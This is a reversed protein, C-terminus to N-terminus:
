KIEEKPNLLEAKLAQWESKEVLWCNQPEGIGTPTFLKEVEALVQQRTLSAQSKAVETYIDIVLKSLETYEFAESWTTKFKKCSKNTIGVIAKIDESLLKDEGKGAPPLPQHLKRLQEVTLTVEKEEQKEPVPVCHGKGDCKESCEDENYPHEVAYDCGECGKFNGAENCIMMKM